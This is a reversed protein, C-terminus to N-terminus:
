RKRIFAAVAVSMAIGTVITGVAGSLAGITPNNAREFEDVATEVDGTGAAELRTRLADVADPYFDPFVISTLVYSGILILVGAVLSAIVGAKVQGGYGNEKATFQLLAVLVALQLGIAVPVFWSNTSEKTHLGTMAFVVTILMVIVFLVAGAILSSRM